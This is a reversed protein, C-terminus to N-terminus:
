AKAGAHASPIRLMRRALAFAETRVKPSIGLAVMPVVAALTGLSASLFLGFFGPLWGASLSCLWAALCCLPTALAPRMIGEWLLPAVSHGTISGFYSVGFYILGPLYPVTIALILGASGYWRSALVAIAVTVLVQLFGIFRVKGITKSMGLSGSALGAATIVFFHAALLWHNSDDWHIRGGTWLGVFVANNAAAVSFVVGSVALIGQSLQSWHETVAKMNGAIYTDYLMPLGIDFPRGVVQRLIAFPRTCVSWTAGAELGLLRVIMLQPLSNLVLSGIQVVFVDKAYQWISAWENKLPFAILARSPYFRLKGCAYVNFALCWAFGAAQNALMAYIGWGGQFGWRLVLFLIVFQGIQRIQSLDQRHHMYLPAGLVQTAMGLSMLISQGAILLISKQVLSDPVPFLRWAFQALILGLILVAGSIIGLALASGGFLRGYKERDAEGKCELLHRTVANTVGLEALMLYGTITTILGWLGFESKTLYSLALPISAFSYFIQAIIAGYSFVVGRILLKKKTM